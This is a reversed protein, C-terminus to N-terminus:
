QVTVTVHTISGLRFYVYYPSSSKFRAYYYKNPINSPNDADIDTCLDVEKNGYPNGSIDYVNSCSCGNPVDKYVNGSRLINLTSGSPTKIWGFWEKRQYNAKADVFTHNSPNGLWNYGEGQEVCYEIRRSSSTYFKKWGTNFPVNCGDIYSSIDFTQKSILTTLTPLCASSSITLKVERKGNCTYNHSIIKGTGTTGDGFDWNYNVTASSNSIQTCSANFSVNSGSASYNFCAMCTGINVTKSIIKSCGLTFDYMEVVVTYSGAATYTHNTGGIQSSVPGYTTGDGFSYKITRNPDTAGTYTFSVFNTQANATYSFNVNVADCPDIDIGAPAGQRFVDYDNQWYQDWNGTTLTSVNAYLLPNEGNEMARLAAVDNNKIRFMLRRNKKYLINTGIKVQYKQNLFTNIRDDLVISHHFDEIGNRYEAKEKDNFRKRASLFGPFSNEFEIQSPHGLDFGDALTLNDPITIMENKLSEYTSNFTAQDKFCLMGDKYIINTTAVKAGSNDTTISQQNDQNDIKKKCGQYVLISVVLLSILVIKKKM